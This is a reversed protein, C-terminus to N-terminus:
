AIGRWSMVMVCSAVKVPPSQKTPISGTLLEMTNSCVAQRAILVCPMRVHLLRQRVEVAPHDLRGTICGRAQQGRHFRVQPRMVRRVKEMHLMCQAFRDGDRQGGFLLSGGLRDGLCFLRELLRM